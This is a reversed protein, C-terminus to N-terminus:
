KKKRNIWEKEGIKIRIDVRELLHDIGSSKNLIDAGRSLIAEVEPPHNLLEM